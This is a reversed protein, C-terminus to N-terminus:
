LSNRIFCLSHIVTDFNEPNFYAPSQYWIKICLALNCVYEVLIEWTCKNQHVFETMSGSHLLNNSKEQLNEQYYQRSTFSSIKRVPRSYELLARNSSLVVSDTSRILQMLNKFLTTTKVLYAFNEISKQWKAVSKWLRVFCFCTMKIKWVM